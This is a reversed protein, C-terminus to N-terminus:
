GTISGPWAGDSPLLGFYQLRDRLHLVLETNDPEPLQSTSSEAVLVTGSNLLLQAAVEEGDLGIARVTVHAGQGAGAIVASYAVLLDALEDGILLSKQALTLHHM